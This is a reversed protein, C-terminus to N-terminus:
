EFSRSNTQVKQSPAASIPKSVNKLGLFVDIYKMGSSKQVQELKLPSLFQKRWFEDRTAFTIAHFVDEKSYNKRIKRYSRLINVRTGQDQKAKTVYTSHSMSKQILWDLYMKDEESEEIKFDSQKDVILEDVKLGNFLKESNAIAIVSINQNDSQVMVYGLKKLNEIRKKFRDWGISYPGLIREGSKKTVQICSHEVPKGDFLCALIFVDLLELTSGSTVYRGLPIEISQKMYKSNSHFVGLFFATATGLRWPTVFKKVM